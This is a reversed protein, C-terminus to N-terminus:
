DWIPKFLIESLCFYIMMGLILLSLFKLQKNYSIRDKCKKLEEYHIYFLLSFILYNSLLIIGPKLNMASYITILSVSTYLLVLQYLLANRYGLKVAITIKNRAQDSELDRINNVNLVGTSLLGTAIAVWWINSAITETQLYYSGVVSVPGFFIFVALDGLGSYGYPKKGITYFCAAWLGAIGFGLFLYFAFSKVDFAAFLLMLGILFSLLAMFYVANKMKGPSILGSATVRDSREAGDAGNIFDGYDNADNSLIQQLVATLISLLFITGSISGTESYALLTGTIGGAIALPLTRLRAARIYVSLSM